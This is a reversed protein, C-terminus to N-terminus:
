SCQILLCQLVVQSGHGFVEVSPKARSLSRRWRRLRSIETCSPRVHTPEGPLVRVQLPSPVVRRAFLRLRLAIEDGAVDCVPGHRCEYRERMPQAGIGVNELQVLLLQGRQYDGVFLIVAHLAPSLVEDESASSRLGVHHQSVCDAVVNFDARVAFGTEDVVLGERVAPQLEVVKHCPPRRVGRTRGIEVARANSPVEVLSQRRGDRARRLAQEEPGVVRAVLVRWVDNGQQGLHVEM